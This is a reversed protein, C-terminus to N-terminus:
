LVGYNEDIRARLLVCSPSPDGLTQTARRPAASNIFSAAQDVGDVGRWPGDSSRGGHESSRPNSSRQRQTDRPGVLFELATARTTRVSKKRPYTSPDASQNFGALREEDLRGRQNKAIAGVRACDSATPLLLEQSKERGLFNLRIPLRLLPSGSIGAVRADRSKRDTRSTANM